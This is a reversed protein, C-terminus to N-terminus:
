TDEVVLIKLIASLRGVIAAFVMWKITWGLLWMRFDDNSMRSLTKMTM